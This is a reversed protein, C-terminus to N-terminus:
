NFIPNEPFNAWISYEKSLKNVTKKWIEKDYNMITNVDIDSVLWFNNSLETDLQGAVWGAYGVFFKIRNRQNKGGSKLLQIIDFNGGWYLNDKIHVSNPISKGFTHIYFINKNKVPGGVLLPSDFNKFEDSLESIKHGTPKNLILGVTGSKNHEILLIIARQFFPESGFPESVLIMGQKPKIKNSKIKFIDIQKDM